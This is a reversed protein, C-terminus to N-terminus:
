IVDGLFSKMGGPYSSYDYTTDDGGAMALATDGDAPNSPLNIEVQSVGAFARLKAQGGTDNM